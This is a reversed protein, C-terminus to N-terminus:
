HLLHNLRLHLDNITLTVNKGGDIKAAGAGTPSGVAAIIDTTTAATLTSNGVSSTALTTTGVYGTSNVTVAGVASVVVNEISNIKAGVATTLDVAGGTVAITLSDTGGGGDIEDLSTLTLAGASTNGTFTDNGDKGIFAAGSDVGASLAFISGTVTAAPNVTGIAVNTAGTYAVAAAVKTNWATAAAGFTADTTYTGFMNVINSIVAGRADAAAANLQSTIYATGETLAAGTLGLNTAVAKAAVATSSQTASYFGNLTKALGGNALIDANVQTMTASGVQVGFLAGAFAQVQSANTPFVFSM